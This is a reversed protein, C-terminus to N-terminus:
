MRQLEQVRKKIIQVAEHMEEETNLAGISLRIAGFLAEKGSGIAKLVHSPEPKRSHCASGTSVYLGDEELLHLLVEGKDIGEFWVNIIPTAYKDPSGNFHVGPISVLGALLVDKISKVKGSIDQEKLVKVAEGFGAIGTTNETGARKAREQGGGSLYPPLNLRKDIYLAGIGKPGHIKHASVSLAHIGWVKPQLEVKGFSQVADVHFFVSTGKLIEGVEQVPLITGLENNVHMMSLLITDQRLSKKLDDLSISGSKDVPLITIDFGEEALEELPNLVAPHEIATSIIHRGRKGYRKAIGKIVWNNAETGGSCFYLESADVRLTQAIEQRAEKIIKEAEFGKKHLSSPNGYNEVLVRTMKEAVRPFVQTTASNDLYIERAM